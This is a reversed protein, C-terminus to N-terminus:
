EADADGATAAAAPDIGPLVLTSNEPVILQVNPNLKEIANLQVVQPNQRIARGRIRIAQAEGQAEAIKQQAEFRAKQVNAQERKANQEAVQTEEIAKSFEPTFDINTLLFDTVRISDKELQEDLRQQTERRIKERNAAVEIAKYEATVSKLTQPVRPDILRSQFHGGTERYLDLVQGPDVQYNLTATVYIAQSDRSVAAGRGDGGDMAYTRSEIQLSVEDLSQWPATTVLGSGTQGVIDGFQKVIGAHGAAVTHFSFFATLLAALIAGGVLSGLSILRGNGTPEDATGASVARGWVVGVSVILALIVMLVFYGM